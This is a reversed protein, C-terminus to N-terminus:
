SNDLMRQRMKQMKLRQLRKKRMEINHAFDDSIKKKRFKKVRNWEVPHKSRFEDKNYIFNQVDKLAHLHQDKGDGYRNVKFWRALAKRYISALSGPPMNHKEATDDIKHDTEDDLWMSVTETLYEQEVNMNEYISERILSYLDEVRVYIM